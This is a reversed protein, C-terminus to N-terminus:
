AGSCNRYNGPGRLAANTAKASFTFLRRAIADDSMRMGVDTPDGGRPNKRPSSNPRDPMSKSEDRRADAMFPDLLYGPLSREDDISGVARENAAIHSCM